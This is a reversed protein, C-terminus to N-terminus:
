RRIQSKQKPPQQSLALPLAKGTFYFSSLSVSSSGAIEGIGKGDTKLTGSGIPSFDLIRSDPTLLDNLVEGM